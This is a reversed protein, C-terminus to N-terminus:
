KMKTRESNLNTPKIFVWNNYKEESGLSHITQGDSSVVDRVCDLKGRRVEVMACKEVGLGM